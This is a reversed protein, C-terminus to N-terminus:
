IRVAQDFRVHLMGLVSLTNPPEPIMDQVERICLPVDGTGQEEEVASIFHGCRIPFSECSLYLRSASPRVVIHLLALDPPNPFVYGRDPQKIMCLVGRRYSRRNEDVDGKRFEPDGIFVQRALM